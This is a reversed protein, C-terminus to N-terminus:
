KIETVNVKPTEVNVNFSDVVSDFVAKGAQSNTGSTDVCNLMWAYGSKILIVRHIVNKPSEVTTTAFAEGGDVTKRDWSNVYTNYKAFTEADTKPDLASRRINVVIERNQAANAFEIWGNGTKKPTMAATKDGIVWTAPYSVSFGYKTSTYVKSDASATPTPSAPKDPVVPAPPKSIQEPQAPPPTPMAPPPPPPAAPAGPATPPAVRSATPTNQVQVKTTATWIQKGASDLGIAKFSHVGDAITVTNFQAEFPAQSKQDVLANNCFIKVSAVTVDKPMVVSLTIAGRERKPPAQSDTPGIIVKRVAPRVSPRSARRNNENTGVGAAPPPPAPPPPAPALGDDPAPPPEPTTEPPAMPEGESHQEGEVPQYIEVAQDNEMPPAFDDQATAAVGLSLVMCMAILIVFARM